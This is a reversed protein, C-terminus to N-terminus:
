IEYQLSMMHKKAYRVEGGKNHLIFLLYRKLSIYSIYFFTYVFAYVEYCMRVDNMLSNEDAHFILYNELPYTWLMVDCAMGNDEISYVFKRYSQGNQFKIIHDSLGGNYTMM